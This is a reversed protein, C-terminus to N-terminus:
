KIVGISNRAGFLATGVRVITAGEEIAIPYDDSMGMSLEVNRNDAFLHLAALRKALNSLEKFYPRSKEPDSFFPPIIMLGRVVLNTEEVIQRVLGETMEPLVGSKQSERGINVQILVPLKKNLNKAHGDLAKALKWRDLTHIMDFLEVAQKAKNSQLHGIFHWTTSSPLLPIKDAAEQLYNEGFNTQGCDVAQRILAIDVTKSVAVLKIDKPDRGVKIATKAITELIRVLNERLM